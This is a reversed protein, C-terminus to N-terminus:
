RVFVQVSESPVPGDVHEGNVFLLYPGPPLVNADPLPDIQLSAGNQTFALEVTRQDNDIVHTVSPNRILVVSDIADAGKMAVRLGEGNALDTGGVVQAIEPRDGRFLYPPEFIEFSPNRGENESFGGPLTQNFGYLTSIPAHGGLMVRGDPLLVASNHYTREQTAEVLRTWENTAPDFQEIWRTAMGTGPAVVEDRNAGNVALVTGDPLAVSHPYWRPENLPGTAQTSMVPAGTSVDVTVINSADTGIYAGPSVGLVGGAKLFRAQDYPPTLPLMSQFASGRFGPALTGLGPIGLETWTATEPDYSAAINWFAEDYGYGAPNFVQGGAGYFIEGNPLLHMRPYLPLSRDGTSPNQRWELTESDFTETQIVNRGSETPNREPYVPKILKRVGSAIFVDGDPQTVMSPYWRGHEMEGAQEWTETEPDFIRANKLGELEVVGLGIPQIGPESYYSTGGTVLIRGDALHVLDTCFMSGDNYEPDIVLEEPLVYEKENGDPNAGGDVPEPATWVPTSTYDGGFDMVRSRDNISDVGFEAVISIDVEETGELANWYLVNGNALVAASGAAPICDAREDPDEAAICREEREQFIELLRGTEAHSEENAGATGTLTLALLLSSTLAITRRM